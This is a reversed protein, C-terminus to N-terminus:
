TIAVFNVKVWVLKSYFQLVETGHCDSILTPRRFKRLKRSIRSHACKDIHVKNFISLSKSQATTFAETLEIHRTFYTAWLGECESPSWEGEDGSGYDDEFDM